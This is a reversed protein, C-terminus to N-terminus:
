PYEIIRQTHCSVVATLIIGEGQLIGGLCLRGCTMKPPQSEDTTLIM